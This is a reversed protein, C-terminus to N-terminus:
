ATREPRDDHAELLAGASSGAACFSVGLVSLLTTGSTMETPGLEAADGGIPFRALAAEPLPPSAALSTANAVQHSADNATLM